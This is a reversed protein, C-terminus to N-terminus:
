YMNRIRVKWFVNTVRHDCFVMQKQLLTVFGISQVVVFVSFIDLNFVITLTVPRACLAQSRRINRPACLNGCTKPKTQRCLYRFSCRCLITNYTYRENPHSYSVRGVTLQRTIPSFILKVVNLTRDTDNILRRPRSSFPFFPRADSKREPSGSDSLWPLQTLFIVASTFLDDAVQRFICNVRCPISKQASVFVCLM